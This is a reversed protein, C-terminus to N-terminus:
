ACLSRVIEPAGKVYRVRRGDLMAASPYLTPRINM